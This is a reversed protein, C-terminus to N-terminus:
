SKCAQVSRLATWIWLVVSLGFIDLQPRRKCYRHGTQETLYLHRFQPWSVWARRFWPRELLRRLGESDHDRKEQQGSGAARLDELVADSDDAAKGLWVLVRSAQSYIRAMFLIQSKVEEPNRQDICIADVWIVREFYHDRLRRLAAHLNETVNVPYGSVQIKMVINPDGWVYSLAEYLHAKESGEQVDYTFLSCRILSNEDPDPLLRLLRIAGPQRPLPTYIARDM